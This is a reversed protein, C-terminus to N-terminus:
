CVNVGNLLYSVVDDKILIISLIKDLKVFYKGDQQNKFDKTIHEILGFEGLKDLETRNSM